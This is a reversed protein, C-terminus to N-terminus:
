AASAHAEAPPTKMGLAQHPRRHNYFQIGDGIMRVAHRQNEFRHRHVCQEKMAEGHAKQLDKLQREYQERVDEPKARLANEMGRKGDEIWAEIDSPPRDFQRSAEADQGPHNGSGAGVEAAGDM